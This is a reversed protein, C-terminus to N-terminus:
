ARRYPGVIDELVKYSHRVCLEQDSLLFHTKARTALGVQTHELTSLDESVIDVAMCKTVEQAFRQGANRPKPMYWRAEFLTRDVALPWYQWTLYFLTDHIHVNLNPFLVFVDQIWNLTKTPNVEAPLRDTYEAWSPVWTERQMDRAYRTMGRGFQNALAQIPNPKYVPSGYISLMHHPGYFKFANNHVLPNASDSAIDAVSHKHVFPVHFAEQFADKVVKWNCKVEAKWAYCAGSVLKFPYGRLGAYLEGLSEQLTEQPHPDLNIFIFGEWTDTAIPTLGHEERRLNFFQDEDPVGTLRGEANYTWGHFKCTFARCSGQTTWALQNGRHSCVNHFARIVGDKGRVVLVSANCMAIEKVFYDGLEPIEEERGVHLWLRRFVHERELEFYEQSICPEIPVPETDLGFQQTYNKLGTNDSTRM